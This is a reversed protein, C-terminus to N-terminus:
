DTQKCAPCQLDAFELILLPANRNGKIHISPPLLKSRDIGQVQGSRKEHKDKQQVFIWQDHLKPSYVAIMTIGIFSLVAIVLKQDGELERGELWYDRSSLLAILTVIVASSFCWKCFAEVVFLANYQLFWSILLAVFSVGWIIMDFRRLGALVTTYAPNASPSPETGDGDSAMAELTKPTARLQTISKHRLLSAGLLLLYMGLGIIATPIPGVQSYQSKLVGECSGPGASCGLSLDPRFHHYTLYSAVFVGGLTLLLTFINSLTRKM